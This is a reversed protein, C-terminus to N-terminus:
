RGRAPEEAAAPKVPAPGTGRPDADVLSVSRIVPPDVPRQSNPVNTLETDAIKNIVDSGSVAEGFGTYRGDLGMTAQRTLCVFIQSGNSNPDGSRAMSLVGFDHPLESQELDIFYGPGGSGEGRPDGAQIVFRNPRTVVRHFEIDTYFGGDALHMFNWVTNPAEDPRMRFTIEGESTEMVAYKETYIRYGSFVQPMPQWAPRGDRVSNSYAPTVMPQLVLAAGVPADGDYLQAYLVGQQGESEWLNPFLSALDVKGAEVAEKTEVVANSPDLLKLSLPNETNPSEITIPVPRDLGYYTREASLQSSAGFATALSVAATLISRTPIRM